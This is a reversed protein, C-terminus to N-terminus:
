SLPFRRFLLILLLGLIALYLGGTFLVSIWGTAEPLVNVACVAAFGACFIPRVLASRSLDCGSVQLLRRLSFWFNIAHTVLFSFIFGGVGWVPLLLFLFVVDLLATVTNLRVCYVQQGLGKHMGDVICDLYLMPIMPAFIQLYLGAQKSDYLLIGLPDALVYLFGAAACAYIMSKELVRGTIRGIRNRNGSAQCRSLEPVLLDSVAFLITSPFMLIPFVMGQITGYNELALRRNGESQTLGHPILFQELTGLGSRLYDNLAVPVCLRILRQGMHLPENPADYTRFDLLMLGALVLVSAAGALASGGVISVCAHRLDDQLGLSLLWITLFVTLVRDGIEVLVLRLVKGCATFYGALISSMCAIPLTAGLLRLSDAAQLDKVWHVALPEAFLVLLLGVVMSLLIGAGMCWLMAQRVGGLRKRGYEQASLYMAAVRIGSTGITMAFANVTLILQLLGLGAAGICDSLYIQFLMSVARMMLNAATLLLASRLMTHKSAM